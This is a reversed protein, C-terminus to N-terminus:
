GSGGCRRPSSGQGPVSRSTTDTCCSPAYAASDVGDPVKVTTLQPLRHGLAAFVKLGMAELGEQLATGVAVHRAIVADMGEELVRGLGAHLSAVMATPATHHYTRRGAGAAEGVYGGLM